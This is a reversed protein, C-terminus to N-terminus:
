SYEYEFFDVKKYVFDWCSWSNIWNYIYWCLCSYYEFSKAQESLNIKM